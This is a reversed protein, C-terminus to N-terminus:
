LVVACVPAAPGCLPSLAKAAWWIIAGIGVGAAAAGAVEAANSNAQNGGESGRPRNPFNDPGRVSGDPNVNTHSGDKHEVDWHPGGHATPSGPPNWIWINGDADEYGRGGGRSGSPVKKPQGRSSKPPVYPRDGTQPLNAAQGPWPAPPAPGPSPQPVPVPEGAPQAVPGGATPAPEPTPLAAQFPGSGGGGGGSGVGGGEGPAGTVACGGAVCDVQHHLAGALRGGVGSTALTTVIVAVVALFGMYEAGAQGAQSRLRSM